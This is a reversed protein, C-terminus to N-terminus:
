ASLPNNLAARAAAADAALQEAIAAADAAHEALDAARAAAEKALKEAREAAATLQEIRWQEERRAAVRAAVRSQEWDAYHLLAARLQKFEFYRDAYIDAAQGADFLNSSDHAEQIVTFAADIALGVLQENNEKM